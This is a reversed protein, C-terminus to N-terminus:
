GLIYELFNLLYHSLRLVGCLPLTSLRYHPNSHDFSNEAPLLAITNEAFNIQSYLIIHVAYVGTLSNITKEYRICTRTLVASCFGCRRLTGRPLVKSHVADLYLLSSAKRGVEGFLFVCNCYAM